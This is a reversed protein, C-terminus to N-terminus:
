NVVLLHAPRSPPMRLHFAAVRVRSQYEEESELTVPAPPAVDRGLGRSIADDIEEPWDSSIEEAAYTTLADKIERINQATDGPVALAYAALSADTARERLSYPVEQSWNTGAYLAHSNAHEDPVLRTTDQMGDAAFYGYAQSARLTLALDRAFLARNLPANAAEVAALAAESERHAVAVIGPLIEELHARVVADYALVAATENAEAQLIVQDAVEHAHALAQEDPRAPIMVAEGRAVRAIALAQAAKYAALRDSDAEDLTGRADRAKATLDHTNLREGDAVRIPHKQARPIVDQPLVVFPSPVTM